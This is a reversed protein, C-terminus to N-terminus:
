KFIKKKIIPQCYIVANKVIEVCYVKKVQKKKAITSSLLSIGGGLDVGVGKFSNFIKNDLKLFKKMNGSSIHTYRKCIEIFNKKSSIKAIKNNLKYDESNLIKQNFRWTTFNNKTKFM